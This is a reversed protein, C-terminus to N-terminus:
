EVPPIKQEEIWVSLPRLTPVFNGPIWNNMPFNEVAITVTGGKFEDRFDNWVHSGRLGQRRFALVGDDRRSLLKGNIYVAFGEGSNKHIAGDVRIRYRCDDKLPPLEVTKRMLVVDNDVITEPQPLETPYDPYKDLWEVVEARTKDRKVGFPAPANKWGAQKPDFDPMTWNVLGQPFSIELPAAEKKGKGKPPAVTAKYPSDPMDFGFYDWSANKLDGGFPKWDYAHIGAEQYYAVADDLADDLYTPSEDPKDMGKMAARLSAEARPNGAFEALVGDLIIPQIAARSAATETETPPAMAAEAAIEAKVREERDSKPIVAAQGGKIRAMARGLAEGVLMYTEANRNYHYDQNRPSEDVERWFDLTDVSAVAGAFEPHQKPDGVAMQAEWVGKWDGHSLRYGHFGGTAVAVPMGPANFEERIDHILNVLNKEYAEKTSGRDKHAQWWVFGAIEYGQGQYNPVVEAINKLTTHVGEVMARYEFGEYESDPDERGSSPPRFDFNLSRNGMATKILLVQADHFTGMVHGFGVEPGISKGNNSVASLPSAAREPFLRPDIYTVDNRAAWNGDDDLLYPFKGEKQTVYVMDGRGKLDVQELWLAASGNKVYTITLPYRKRAELTVKTIVPKGGPDRRYVEAGDLVAVAYASDGFGVHVLYNGTEPVDIFAKVVATCPGDLLPIQAATTGLAVTASEAPTLKSYDAKPDFSGKYLNVVAGTEARTDASQYVGHAALASVGKWFWRNGGRGRSTGVPMVGPIVAPDAVLFVSPNPPQAGKLDGMGVMNSQGALIYVKVPKEPNGPKGDSKPLNLPITVARLSMGMAMLVSMMLMMRKM